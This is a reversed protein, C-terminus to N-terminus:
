GPHNYVFLTGFAGYDHGASQQGKVVLKFHSAIKTLRCTADPEVMGMTCFETNKTTCRAANVLSLSM